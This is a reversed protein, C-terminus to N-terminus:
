AISVLVDKFPPIAILIAFIITTISYGAMGVGIAEEEGLEMLAIIGLLTGATGNSIGRNIPNTVGWWDLLKIDLRLGLVGNLVATAATLGANGGTIESVGLAIPTTISHALLPYAIEQPSQLVFSVFAALLYIVACVAFLMPTMCLIVRHNKILPDVAAFALSVIAPNLFLALYNGAGFQDITLFSFNSVLYEQLGTKWGEIGHQSSLMVMVIVIPTFLVPPQLLAQLTPHLQGLYKIRYTTALIYVLVSASLQFAIVTSRTKQVMLANIISTGLFIYLWTQFIVDIHPVFATPVLVNDLTNSTINEEKRDVEQLASDKWAEEEVELDQHLKVQQREIVDSEIASRANLCEYKPPDSIIHSQKIDETVCELQEEESVNEELKTDEVINASVNSGSTASLEKSQQREYFQLFTGISIVCM